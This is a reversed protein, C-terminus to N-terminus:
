MKYPSGKRCKLFEYRGLVSSISGGRGVVVMVCAGVCLSVCVCVLGSYHNSLGYEDHVRMRWIDVRSMNMLDPTTRGVLSKVRSGSRRRGSADTRTTVFGGWLDPWPQYECRLRASSIIICAPPLMPSSPCQWEIWRGGGLRGM